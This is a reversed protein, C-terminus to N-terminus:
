KDDLSSYYYAMSELSIVRSGREPESLGRRAQKWPEENHSLEILWQASKKGYFDLVADITEIQTENLLAPNGTFVKEIQFMGRHYNFLERIVPGNAWAEINEYFIPNEDWVLSWAQCYYVLKQLKMTSIPGTKNLIYEAVDLSSVLPKEPSVTKTRLSHGIVFDSLDKSIGDDFTDDYAFESLLSQIDISEEDYDKNFTDEKNMDFKWGKSM